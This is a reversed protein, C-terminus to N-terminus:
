LQTYAYAFYKYTLLSFLIGFTSFYLPIAKFYYPIFEADLLSLHTEKIYISNRLGDSGLGIFIDKFIFGSFISGIALLVLPVLIFTDSEHANKAIEQSGKPNHIFILIFIRFTYFATLLATISGLWYIFIGNISYSAVATELIYDKSYFGSLFPFGSLSLSGILFTIYTVPMSRSLGGLKRVDQEDCMSHIVSGAALFLLAKFFAHNFLHFLGAHYNSLGCSFFMYGLQSCTSYAIVKKIDHQVLAITASIFATLGGVLSIISLTLPSYEFLPSCRIVLFVGATVMTAAHILASVPTPGEMADPLWTHLGIQASKGMAGIFLLIAILDISNIQYGLIYSQNDKLYPVLSFIFDFNLSGFNLFCSGLALVIFVDAVRNMIVAKLAAKNAKVRTYWFSILLYSCLGVGEWGFFLQMFNDSLILALMFFTFLSLYSM